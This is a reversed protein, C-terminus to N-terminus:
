EVRLTGTMTPHFTCVYPFTGTDTTTHTWSQGPAIAKSDFRQDGATATHPFFDKNTWVVQDGAKVVLMAPEFRSADITVTHTVPSAAVDAATDPNTCGCSLLVAVVVGSTVTRLFM